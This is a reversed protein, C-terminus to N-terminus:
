PDVDLSLMMDPVYPPQRIAYFLGVNALALFSRGEGVWGPSNYLPETLLRQQKESFINDVPRDDETVLHGVDPRIDEPVVLTPREALLSETAMRNEMRPMVDWWSTYSAPATVATEVAETGLLDIRDAVLM